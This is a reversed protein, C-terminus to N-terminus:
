AACRRRPRRAAPAREFGLRGLAQANGADAARNQLPCQHLMSHLIAGCAYVDAKAGDFACARGRAALRAPAHARPTAREYQEIPIYSNKGQILLDGCAVGREAGGM